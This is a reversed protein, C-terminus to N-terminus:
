VNLEYYLCSKAIFVIAYMMASTDESVDPPLARNTGALFLYRSESLGM